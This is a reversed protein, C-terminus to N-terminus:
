VVLAGRRRENAVIALIEDRRIAPHHKAMMERSDGPRTRENPRYQRCLKTKQGAGKPNQDARRKAASHVIHDDEKRRDPAAAFRPWITLSSIPAPTPASASTLTSAMMVIRSATSARTTTWASAWLGQPTNVIAIVIGTANIMPAAQPKPKQIDTRYSDDANEAERPQRPTSLKNRM